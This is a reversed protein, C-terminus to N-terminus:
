KTPFAYLNGHRWGFFASAPLWGEGGPRALGTLPHGSVARQRRNPYICHLMRYQSSFFSSDGFVEVRTSPMRPMECFDTFVAIRSNLKHRTDYLPLLPHM